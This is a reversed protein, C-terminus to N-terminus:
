SAPIGGFWGPDRDQRRYKKHTNAIMRFIKSKSTEDGKKTENLCTYIYLLM